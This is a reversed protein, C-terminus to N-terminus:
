WSITRQIGREDYSGSGTVSFSAGYKPISLSVSTVSKRHVYHGYLKSSGNYTTSKPELKFSAYGYLATEVIEDTYGKLDAYWKVGSSTAQAYGKEYSHVKNTYYTKKETRDTKYGDYKDYKYFSNDMMEFKSNDWSIGIPDQYRNVPLKEWDYNFIIKIYNLKGTSSKSKSFTFNLTLSSTSIQNRPMIYSGDEAIQLNTFSGEEENYYSITAGGFTEDSTVIDAKADVDMTDIVIQPFGRQLLIEETTTTDPASEASTMLSANLILVLTLIFCTLSKFLKKNMLGGKKILM